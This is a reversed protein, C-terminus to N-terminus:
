HRAFRSPSNTKLKQEQLRQYKAAYTAMDDTDKPEPDTRATGDITKIPAPASSVQRNPVKANEAQFKVLAAAMQVTPLAFIRAAEDPNDALQAIVKHGDLIVEPDTVIQMFDPRDGAGLSAVVNCRDTFDKYDTNGAKLLGDTRKKAVDQAALKVAEAQVAKQFDAPTAFAPTPAPVPTAPPANPDAAAPPKGEAMARYLETQREAEEARRRETERQATLTDIRSQFANKKVPVPEAPTAEPAAAVPAPTPEPAPAAFGGDAPIDIETVPTPAAPVAVVSEPAPAAPTAPDSM